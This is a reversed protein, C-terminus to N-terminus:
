GQVEEKSCNLWLYVFLLYPPRPDSLGMLVQRNKHVNQCHMAYYFPGIKLTKSKKFDREMDLHTVAMASTVAM